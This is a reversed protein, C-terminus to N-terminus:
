PFSKSRPPAPLGVASNFSIQLLTAGAENKVLVSDDYSIEAAFILDEALMERVARLAYARASELDKMVLGETDAICSGDQLHFFYRPM